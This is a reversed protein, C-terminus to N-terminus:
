LYLVYLHMGVLPDWTIMQMNRLAEPAAVRFSCYAAATLKKHLEKGPRSDANSCPFHLAYVSWLLVHLCHVLM